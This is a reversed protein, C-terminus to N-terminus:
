RSASELQRNQHGLGRQKARRNAYTFNTRLREIFTPAVECNFHPGDDELDRPWQPRGTARYSKIAAIADAVTHQGRYWHWPMFLEDIARSQRALVTLTAFKDFVVGKHHRMCLGAICFITDGVNTNAAMNFWVGRKPITTKTWHKIEGTELQLLVKDLAELFGESVGLDQASLWQSRDETPLPARM